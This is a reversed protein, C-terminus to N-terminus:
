ETVVITGTMLAHGDGCFVSCRFPFTGAKDATFEVVQTQNPVLSVQVNFDPLSFGHTVDRSTIELQVKQGKKVTIIKPEFSWTKAVLAVVKVLPAEVKVMVDAKTQAQDGVKITAETKASAAVVPPAGASPASVAFVQIVMAGNVMVAPDVASFEFQGILGKDEHLMAYLKPTVSNTKITVVVKNNEGKKVPAAGIILGPKGNIEQHIAVWGDVTSNVSGVIVTGSIVAQDVVAISNVELTTEASSNATAPQDQSNETTGQLSTATSCGAGLLVVLAALAGARRWVKQPM